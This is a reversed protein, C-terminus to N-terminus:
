SLLKQVAFSVMFLMFLSGVSQSFIDAFLAVLFPHIELIYVCNLLWFNLSICIEIGMFIAPNSSLGMPESVYGESSGERQFRM